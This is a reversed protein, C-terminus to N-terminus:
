LCRAMDRAAAAMPLSQAHVHCHIAASHQVVTAAHEFCCPDSATFRSMLRGLAARLAARTEVMAIRKQMKGHAWGGRFGLGALPCAAARMSTRTSTTTALTPSAGHHARGLLSMAPRPIAPMAGINRRFRSRLTQSTPAHGHCHRLYGRLPLWQVGRWLRLHIGDTGVQDRPDPPCALWAKGRSIPPRIRVVHLRPLKAHALIVVM